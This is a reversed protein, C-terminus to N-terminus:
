IETLFLMSGDRLKISSLSINECSLKRVLKLFDNYFNSAVETCAFLEPLKLLPQNVGFKTFREAGEYNRKEDM